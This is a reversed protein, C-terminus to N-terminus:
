PHFHFLVLQPKHADHEIHFCTAIRMWGTLKMRPASVWDWSSQEPQKLLRKMEWGLMSLYQLEHLPRTLVATDISVTPISVWSNISGTLPVITRGNNLHGVPVTTTFQDTGTRTAIGLGRPLCQHHPICYIQLLLGILGNQGTPSRPPRDHQHASWKFGTHRLLSPDFVPLFRLERGRTRCWWCPHSPHMLPEGLLDFYAKHVQLHHKVLDEWLPPRHPTTWDYPNGSTIWERDSWDM